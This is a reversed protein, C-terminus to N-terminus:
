SQHRHGRTKRPSGHIWDILQNARCNVAPLSHGTGHPKAQSIPLLKRCIPWLKAATYKRSANKELLTKLNPGNWSMSEHGTLWPQSEIPGTQCPSAKGLRVAHGAALRPSMLELGYPVTGQPTPISPDSPPKSHRCGCRQHCNRRKASGALCAMPEFARPAPRDLDDAYVLNARCPRSEAGAGPCLQWRIAGWGGFTKSVATALCLYRVCGANEALNATHHPKPTEFALAREVVPV